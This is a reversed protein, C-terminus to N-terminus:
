EEMHKNISWQIDISDVVAALADTYVEFFEVLKENLGKIIDDTDDTSQIVVWIPLLYTQKNM